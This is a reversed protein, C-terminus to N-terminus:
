SGDVKMVVRCNEAEKKLFTFVSNAIRDRANKKGYVGKIPGIRVGRKPPARRLVATIDYLAPTHEDCALIYEPLSLGLQPCVLAVTEHITAALPITITSGPELPPAKGVFNAGAVIAAAPTTTSRENPPTKKADGGGGGSGGASGKKVAAAPAIQNEDIFTMAAKAAHIRAKKKSSHFKTKSGFVKESGVTQIGSVQCSFVLPTSAASQYYTYLPANSNPGIQCYSALMGVWNVSEGPETKPNSSSEPPNALQLRELEEPMSKLWEIAVGCAAEKALRKNPFCGGPPRLTKLKVGASKCEVTIASAFAPVGSEPTADEEAFSVTLLYPRYERSQLLEYLDKVHQTTISTSHQIPELSPAPAPTNGRNPTLPPTTFTALEACFEDITLFNLDLNTKDFDFEVVPIESPPSEMTTRSM